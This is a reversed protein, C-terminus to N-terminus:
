RCTIRFVFPAVRRVEIADFRKLLASFRRVRREVDHVSLPPFSQRHYSLRSREAPLILAALKRVSRLSARALAVGYAASTQQKHRREDRAHQTLIDMVRDACLPGDLPALHRAFLQRRRADDGLNLSGDLIATIRQRVEQAERACHSLANPLHYDHATAAIPQYSVTPKGLVAAEVATTCGNHVLVKCALLWPVANGEHIARVNACSTALKKWVEHDESPHPRVIITRDPFWASLQPVLAQFANFLTQVHEAQRRAFAASMGRGISSVGTGDVGAGDGQWLNLRPMFNNVFSFNTNVLIFDGYRRRLQDVQPRFYERLEPRLLDTRPNGTAHVPAGDAGGFNRFLEADDAGWAFVQGALAYAEASFRWSPYEPGDYRVLTEEDWAVIDYGLADILKLMKHRAPTLSKAVFIGRPLLPALYDIFRLSGLTVRFGREAAVCALLLKADLERVQNEVPLILNPRPSLGAGVIRAARSSPAAGPGRQRLGPRAAPWLRHM